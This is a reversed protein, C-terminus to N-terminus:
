RGDVKELDELVRHLDVKRKKSEEELTSHSCCCADIGYKMFVRLTNKNRELIEKITMDKTIEM